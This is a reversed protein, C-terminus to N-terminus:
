CVRRLGGGGRPAGCPEWRWGCGEEDDTTWYRGEAGSGALELLRACPHASLLPFLELLDTDGVMPGASHMRLEALEPLGQLLMGLGAACAKACSPYVAGPPSLTLSVKELEPARLLSPVVCGLLSRGLDGPVIGSLEVERLAALRPMLAPLVLRAGAAADCLPAWSLGLREVGEAEGLAAATGPCLSDLGTARLERLEELEGLVRRLHLGAPSHLRLSTLSASHRRLLMALMPTEGAAPAGGGLDLEHLTNPPLAVLAAAAAERAEHGAAVDLCLRRLPRPSGPGAAGHALAAFDPRPLPPGDGPALLALERLAPLAAGALAAGLSVAAAAPARLRLVCLRPMHPLLELVAGRLEPCDAAGVASLSGCHRRLAGVLQPGTGAEARRRRAGRQLGGGGREPPPPPGYETARLEGVAGALGLLLAVGAPGRPRVGPPPVTALAPGGAVSRRMPACTRACRLACDAPSLYPLVCRRFLPLLGPTLLVAASRRPRPAGQPPRPPASPGQQAPAARRRPPASHLRRLPAGHRLADRLRQTGWQQQQQQQQLAAAADAARQRAARPGASAARAPVPAALPAQQEGGRPGPPLGRLRQLATHEAGAPALEGRHPPRARASAARPRRPLEAAAASVRRTCARLLSGLLEEEASCQAQSLTRARDSSGAAFGVAPPQPTAAVAAAPAPPPHSEPAAAGRALAAPQPWMLCPALKLCSAASPAAAAPDRWGRVMGRPASGLHSRVVRPPPGAEAAAPSAWLLPPLGAAGVPPRSQFM